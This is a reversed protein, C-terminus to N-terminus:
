SGRYDGLRRVSTIEGYLSSIRDRAEKLPEIVTKMHYGNSHVITAEDCMIALHGRWFVLDGRRLGTLDSSLAVEEGLTKFMMDSDRPVPKGCAAFSLQVLGSCDLGLSTKGGWLYPTGKFTEAVSVFDGAFSEFECVHKSYIFGGTDLQVFQDIIDVVNLLSNLSLLDLPPSKIDPKPYIYSRLCCIRHTPKTIQKSLAQTPLYGVYNDGELQGWAWGEANDYVTVSEGYLAQTELRSDSRPQKRVPAASAVVQYPTGSVYQEAMVEGQLYEAALDARAPTVRPDKSM